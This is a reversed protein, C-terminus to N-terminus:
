NKSGLEAFNHGVEEPYDWCLACIPRQDTNCAQPIPFSILWLVMDMRNQRYCLMKVILEWRTRVLHVNIKVVLM